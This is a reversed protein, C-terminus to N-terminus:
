FLKPIVKEAFNKHNGLTIAVSGGNFKVELSIEPIHSSDVSITNRMVTAVIAYNTEQLGFKTSVSNLNIKIDANSQIWDEMSIYKLIYKNDNLKFAKIFRSDCCKHYFKSRQNVKKSFEIDFTDCSLCEERSVLCNSNILSILVYFLVYIKM